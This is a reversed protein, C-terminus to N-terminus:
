IYPLYLSQIQLVALICFVNRYTSMCSFSESLFSKFNRLFIITSQNLLTHAIYADFIDFVNLFKSPKIQIIVKGYDDITYLLQLKQTPGYVQSCLQNM